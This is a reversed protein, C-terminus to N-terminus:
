DIPELQDFEFTYSENAEDFRATMHTPYLTREGGASAPKPIAMEFTQKQMLRSKTIMPEIFVVNGAWYGMILSASFKAGAAKDALPWSHDGSGDVCLEPPGYGEPLKDAAPKSKNARCQISDIADITGRLFHLDFHAEGYPTPGHGSPLWNARLHHVITQEVAIDPMELVVDDQYPHSAPASTFAALPVIVGVSHVVENGDVKAVRAFSAIQAGFLTGTKGAVVEGTSTLAPAHDNTNGADPTAHSDPSDSSSCGASSLGGGLGGSFMTLTVFAALSSAKM